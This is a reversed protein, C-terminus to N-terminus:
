AVLVVERTFTTLSEAGEDTILVDDEIRVGFKDPLYLGPEITFVMGPELRQHNGRMIYPDEHVDRGLGHGTKTRIFQSFPSAELVSLVIDDLDHASIGPRAAERGATNAAFVTEYVGAAEDPCHQVFVTRTIDAMYGGFSAGFDFLLADGAKVAYDARAKAHPRYSNEAAVVIPAFAMGEAGAAFLNKLLLSEIETETQGIRVEEFTRQLADQSIAIARRMLAIDADGKNLRLASSIAKHLDIIEADPFARKLGHHEMVRMTQGEVGIRLPSAHDGLAQFASEAGDNDRWHFVEGEFGILDFSAAELAPVVALSEGDRQLLIVLSRENQYFNKNYVQRFNAGPVLAIADLGEEAMLTRLVHEGDYTM